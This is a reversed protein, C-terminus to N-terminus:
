SQQPGSNHLFAGSPCARKGEIGLPEAGITGRPEAKRIQRRCICPERRRAPARTAARLKASPRKQPSVHRVPVRTQGRHRPARGRNYGAAGGETSAQPLYVAGATASTRSNRHSNNAALETNTLYTNKTIANLILKSTETTTEVIGANGELGHLSLVM